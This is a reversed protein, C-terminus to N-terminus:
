ADEGQDEEEFSEVIERELVAVTVSYLGLAAWAPLDDSTRTALVLEGTEDLCEIVAAVRLPTWGDPLDQVDLDFAKSVRRRRRHGQISYAADQAVTVVAGVTREWLEDIKEVITLVIAGLVNM